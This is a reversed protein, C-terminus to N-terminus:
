GQAHEPEPTKLRQNKTGPQVLLFWHSFDLCCRRPLIWLFPYLLLQFTPPSTWLILLHPHPPAVPPCSSSLILPTNSLPTRLRFPSRPPCPPTHSATQLSYSFCVGSSCILLPSPSLFVDWHLLAPPHFIGLAHSFLCSEQEEPEGWKKNQGMQTTPGRKQLLYFIPLLVLCPPPSFCFSLVSSFCQPTSYLVCM